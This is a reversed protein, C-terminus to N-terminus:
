CFVVALKTSGMDRDIVGGCRPKRVGRRPLDVVRTRWAAPKGFGALVIHCIPGRALLWHHFIIIDDLAMVNFVRIGLAKEERFGQEGGKIGAGLCKDVGFSYSLPHMFILENLPSTRVMFSLFM